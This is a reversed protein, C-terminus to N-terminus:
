IILDFLGFSIALMILGALVTGCGVAIMTKKFDLDLFTAALAGTWAGTGPIPIGVFFFLAIYISANNKAQLKESARDGKKTLWRCLKKVSKRDSKVGNELLTRAFIFIFPMPIINGLVSALLSIIEPLGLSAAVPIAGRLEVLPLMAVIVIILLKLM